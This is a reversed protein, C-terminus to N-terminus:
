QDLEITEEEYREIESVIILVIRGKYSEDPEHFWADVIQLADQYDKENRIIIM